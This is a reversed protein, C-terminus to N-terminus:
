DNETRKIDWNHAVEWRRKKDPIIRGDFGIKARYVMISVFADFHEVVIDVAKKLMSGEFVAIFQDDGEIWWHTWNEDLAPFRKEGDM